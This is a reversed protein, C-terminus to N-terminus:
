ELATLNWVWGPLSEVATIQEPTLTIRGSRIRDVWNGIAVDGEKWKQSPRAHGEREAFAKLASIRVEWYYASLDWTWGPLQELRTAQESTVHKRGDHRLHNVWTGINFGAEEQKQPPRAHGERDSFSRLATFGQEFQFALAEWVWGPLAELRAVQEQSVNPRGRGRITNVWPGLNFEGEKHRQLPRAHGVRDSFAKLAAYGREFLDSVPDWTWGPLSELRTIQEATLTQRLAGVRKSRQLSVWQGLRYGDERYSSSPRAHGERTSFRELATFGEEWLFANIEWVWGPITDLRAKQDDSLENRRERTDRVWRGLPFGAEMHQRSPRPHGVRNRFSKLASVGEDFYFVNADWAWGPLTELRIIQDPTLQERRTRQNSVWRGIHLGMERHGQPARAHGERATFFELASAHADWSHKNSDWTWGPLSELRSIQEKSLQDQRFRLRSVWRGLEFEGEKDRRSPRAHGERQVFADLCAIGQDFLYDSESWYWGPLAELRSIQEKTLHHYRRQVYMWNGLAFGDEAHDSPPRAHGERAAFKELLGYWFNWSVTTTSIIKTEIANVFEIGVSIPFDIVIKGPIPDM